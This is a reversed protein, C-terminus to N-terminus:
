KLPSRYTMAQVGVNNVNWYTEIKIRQDQEPSRIGANVNWYTEIKIFCCVVLFLTLTM